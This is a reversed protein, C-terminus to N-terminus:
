VHSSLLGIRDGGRKEKREDKVKGKKLIDGRQFGEPLSLREKEMIMILYLIGLLRM